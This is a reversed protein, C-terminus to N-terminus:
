AACWSARHAWQLLCDRYRLSLSLFLVCVAILILPNVELGVERSADLANINEGLININDAYLLLQLTGNLELWKHNEQVKRTPYESAFNFLLPSLVDRQKLSNKIPFADSLM